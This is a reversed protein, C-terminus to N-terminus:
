YDLSVVLVAKENDGQRKYHPDEQGRGRVCIECWNRWPFHTRNHAEVEKEIPKCPMVLGMSEEAEGGSEDYEEAGRRETIEEDSEVDTVGLPEEDEDEAGVALLGASPSVGNSTNSTCKM